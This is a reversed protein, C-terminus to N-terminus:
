EYQIKVGPPLQFGPPLQGDPTLQITPTSHDYVENESCLAPYQPNLGTQCKSAIAGHDYIPFFFNFAMAYNCILYNAKYIGQYVFQSMACGIRDSSDRVMTVFHGIAKGNNNFSKILSM